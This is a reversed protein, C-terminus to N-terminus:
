GRRRGARKFALDALAAAVIFVGVAIQAGAQPVQYFVLGDNLVKIILAGIVAGIPSGKGGALSVGGVVCAAIINLEEGPGVAANIGKFRAVYVIGSLAALLGAFAYVSVLTREVRVGSFRAAEPSGGIAVVHRGWPTAALFFAVVVALLLMGLFSLAVPFGSALGLRTDLVQLFASAGGPLIRAASPLQEGGTALFSVGRAIGLTGLTVIFPPVRLFAVLLGNLGGIIGGLVLILLAAPLPAMGLGPQLMLVVFLVGCLGYVAGVSLDIGRTLIVLSAGIAATGIVSVGRFSLLLSALSVFRPGQPRQQLDIALFVCLELALILLILGDRPAFIQRLLFFRPLAHDSSPQATTAAMLPKNAM